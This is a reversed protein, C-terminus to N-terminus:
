KVRARVVVGVSDSNSLSSQLGIVRVAEGVIDIVFRGIIAAGGNKKVGISLMTGRQYVKLRNKKGSDFLASTDVTIFVRRCPRAWISSAM